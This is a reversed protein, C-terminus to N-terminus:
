SQVAWGVLDFEACPLLSVAPGTRIIEIQCGLKGNAGLYDDLSGNGATLPITLKQQAGFGEVVLQDRVAGAGGNLPAKATLRFPGATQM